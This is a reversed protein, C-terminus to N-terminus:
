AEGLPPTSLLPDDADLEALFAEMEAHSKREREERLKKRRDREEATYRADVNVESGLFDRLRVFPVLELGLKRASKVRHNGDLWERDTNLAPAFKRGEGMAEAIADVQKSGRNDAAIYEHEFRDPEIWYVPVQKAPALYEMDLWFRDKLFAIVQDASRPDGRRLDDLSLTQGEVPQRWDILGDSAPSATISKNGPDFDGNNGIASKAQSPDFIRYEAEDHNHGYGGYIAGDFGKAKLLPILEHDDLLVAIIVYLRLVNQPEATLAQEVSDFEESFEEVWNDTNEVHGSHKIAFRCAQEIGLIDALVSFELFPDGEDHVLPKEIRLYCPYVRPRVPRRDSRDNPSEAYISATESGGFSLSPMRTHFEENTEGHEGRYLVLPYGRGDKVLSNRFWAKFAPTDTVLSTATLLRAKKSATISKDKRSFSGSNGIASKIQQPKFAIWTDATHGYDRFNRICIGDYGAERASGIIRSIDEREHEEPLRAGDIYRPRKIALYVLKVNGGQGQAFRSAHETSVSFFFGGESTSGKDFSAFDKPTGHYVRLPTGEADVVKSGRFWSKFAPSDTQKAASAVGPEVVVASATIRHDEPDFNGNNGIASKIQNPKFAIAVQHKRNGVINGGEHTIGDFGAAQLADNAKAKSKLSRWVRDYVESAAPTRPPNSPNMNEASRYTVQRSKFTDGWDQSGFAAEAQDQTVERDMNFPNRISLYVAITQPRTALLRPDKQDKFKEGKPTVVRQRLDSAANNALWKRFEPEGAQWAKRGATYHERSGIDQAMDRDVQVSNLARWAKKMQEPTLEPMEYSSGQWAYGAQNWVASMIINDINYAGNEQPENRSGNGSSVEADATFYFGPGYLGDPNAKSIDFTDFTDRTGHYMRLPRGQADVIKSGSFWSQFAPTDTIDGAQKPQLLYAKKKAVISHQKPHFAGSNGIASKIQNPHFVIWSEGGTGEWTNEYVVGDYGHAEIAAVIQDRGARAHRMMNDAMDASHIKYAPHEGVEIGLKALEPIMTKRDWRNLDPLTLPNQISLYCPLVRGYEHRTTNTEGTFHAAQERSGFHSGLDGVSGTDFVDFDDPSMTGHHVVMPDGNGDVVKSNRFWATFAPTETIPQVDEAFASPSAKRLLAAKGQKAVCDNIALYPIHTQKLRHASHIRHRGDIINGTHDTLAPPFKVGAQMDSVMREITPEGREDGDDGAMGWTEVEGLAKQIPMLRVALQKDWDVDREGKLGTFPSVQAPGFDGVMQQILVLYDNYDADMDDLRVTGPTPNLWSVGSGSSATLRLLTAKKSATVRRLSVEQPTLARNTVAWTPGYFTGLPLRAEFLALRAPIDRDRNAFFEAKAPDNILNTGQRFGQSEIRQANEVPTAHYARVRDDPGVEYGHRQVWDRMKAIQEEPPLQYIPTFAIRNLLAAKKPIDLGKCGCGDKEHICGFDPPNKHDSAPHGCTCKTGTGVKVQMEQRGELETLRRVRNGVRLVIAEPPITNVYRVQGCMELSRWWPAQHWPVGKSGSGVSWVEAFEYDDPQLLAADLKATEVGLVAWTGRVGHHEKYEEAIQEVDTLYVAGKDSPVLGRKAIAPLNSAITGHFLFAPLKYTVEEAGQRRLLKAEKRIRLGKADLVGKLHEILADVSRVLPMGKMLAVVDVNGQREYGEECCAVGPEDAYEGMEMLTIPGKSDELLVFTRYDAEALGTQEWVLQERFQPDDVSQKWSNDWDDRRPDLLQVDYDKLGEVVQLSWEDASGMDIVGALFITFRNRNWPNPAQIRTAM